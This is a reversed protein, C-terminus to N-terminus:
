NQPFNVIALLVPLQNSTQYRFAAPTPILTWTRWDPVDKIREPRAPVEIQPPKRSATASRAPKTSCFEWSLM